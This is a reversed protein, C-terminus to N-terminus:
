IKEKFYLQNKDLSALELCFYASKFSMKDLLLAFTLAFLTEKQKKQELFVM